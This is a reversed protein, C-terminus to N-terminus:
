DNLTPPGIMVGPDALKTIAGIAGCLRAMRGTTIESESTTVSQTSPRPPLYMAERSEREAGKSVSITQFILLDSKWM